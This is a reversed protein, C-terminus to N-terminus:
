DGSKKLDILIILVIDYLMKVTINVKEIEKFM